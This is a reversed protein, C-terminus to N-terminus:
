FNAKRYRCFVSTRKAINKNNNEKLTSPLYVANPGEPM